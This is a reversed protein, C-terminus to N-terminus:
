LEAYTFGEKVLVTKLASKARALLNYTQKKTKRLIQAADEISYDDIYVLYLVSEYQTPLAQMARYLAKHRARKVVDAELDEGVLVRECDELPVQKKKFRLYDVCKNRVAKYLYARANIFYQLNKRKLLLAVFVDEVLDEAVTSNKVYCFAFRVLADGHAKVLEELTKGALIRDYSSKGYEDSM